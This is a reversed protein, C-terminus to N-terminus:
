QGQRHYMWGCQLKIHHPGDEDTIRGATFLIPSEDIFSQGAPLTVKDNVTFEDVDVPRATGDDLLRAGVWIDFIVTDQESNPRRLSLIKGSIRCQYRRADGFPVLDGGSVFKQSQVSIQHPMMDLFEMEFM